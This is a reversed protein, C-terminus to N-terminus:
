SAHQGNVRRVHELQPQLRAVFENITVAEQPSLYQHVAGQLSQTFEQIQTENIGQGPLTMLIWRRMEDLVVPDDYEVAMVLVELLDHVVRPTEVRQGNTSFRLLANTAVGEIEGFYQHFAALASETRLSPEPGRYPEPRKRETLMKELTNAASVLDSGLYIGPVRTTLQPLLSFLRGSYTFISRKHTARETIRAAEIVYRISSVQTASLTVVDPQLDLLTEHFGDLGINQGLYIVEWGRRRMFLSLMLVPIEHWDHAACGVVVRGTRTPAAAAALMALLRERILNSAFHEQQLTLTRNEWSEGVWRLIPLLLKVCVDEIPYIGLAHTLIRQAHTYDFQEVDATFEDFFDEFYGSTMPEAQAASSKNSMVRSQSDLNQPLQHYLLEVAQKIRVSADVQQKLWRLIMIDRESYLRHGQVDRKPKPINYRREWARLTAPDVDTQQAVARINFVPDDPYNLFPEGTM